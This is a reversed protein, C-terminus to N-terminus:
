RARAPGAVYADHNRWSGARAVVDPLQGREGAYGPEDSVVPVVTLWPYGTALKELDTLDYLGDARRAGFAPV